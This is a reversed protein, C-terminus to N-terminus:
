GRRREECSPAKWGKSAAANKGHSPRQECSFACRVECACFKRFALFSCPRSASQTQQPTPHRRARCRCSPTGGSHAARQRCSSPAGGRDCCSSRRRRRRARCGGARQWTQQRRSAWHARAGGAAQLPQWACSEGPVVMWRKDCAVGLEALQTVVRHVHHGLEDHGAAREDLRAGERGAERVM